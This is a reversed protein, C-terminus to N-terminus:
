ADHSSVGLNAERRLNQARRPKPSSISVASSFRLRRKPFRLAVQDSQIKLSEVPFWRLPVILYSPVHHSMTMASHPHSVQWNWGSEM